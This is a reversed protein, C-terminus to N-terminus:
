LKEAKGPPVISVVKMDPLDTIEKHTKKAAMEAHKNAEAEQELKRVVKNYLSQLGDEKAAAKITDLHEGLKAYGELDGRAHLAMRNRVVGRVVLVLSHKQFKEAYGDIEETLVEDMVDLARSAKGMFAAVDHAMASHAAELQNLKEKLQEMEPDLNYKM